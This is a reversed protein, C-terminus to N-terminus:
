GGVAKGVPKPLHERSRRVFLTGTHVRLVLFPEQPLGPSMRKKKICLRVTMRCLPREDPGCESPLRCQVVQRLVGAKLM